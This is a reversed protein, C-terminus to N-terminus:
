IPGQDSTPPLRLQYAFATYDLVAASRPTRSPRPFPNSGGAHGSVALQRPAFVPPNRHRTTRDRRRKFAIRVPKGDRTSKGILCPARLAVMLGYVGVATRLGIRRGPFRGATHAFDRYGCTSSTRMNNSVFSEFEDYGFRFEPDIFIFYTHIYTYINIFYTFLWGRPKRDLFLTRNVRREM